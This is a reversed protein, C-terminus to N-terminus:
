AAAKEDEWVQEPMPLGAYLNPTFPRDPGIDMRQLVWMMQRAHQMSHWTTRELFQHQSQQGYYVDALAGWECHRGPGAFWENLRRHVDAGYALIEARGDGPAPVRYYSEYELRKGDKEELFADVINFIHYALESYSRPRNPLQTGLHEDPVQSFFRQTGEMVHDLRQKLERTSLMQIKLDTIGVLKAVDALIQGNAWSDGLTVIPVQRLGFRSLESFADPDALVNRSLFPVGRTALFEKTRLCSTCGPQWYVRIVDDKDHATQM